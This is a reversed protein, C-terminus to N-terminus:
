TDYWKPKIVKEVKLIKSSKLDKKGEFIGKLLNAIHLTMFKITIYIIWFATKRRLSIPSLLQRFILHKLHYFKRLAKEITNAIEERSMYESPMIPTRWDWQKYDKIEIWDKRVCERWITTGPNPTLTFLEIYDLKLDLAYNALDMISEKTENEVGAIFTGVRIVQPYKKRLVEFVEKTQEYTCRSKQLTQLSETSSREIGILAHKLGIKVMKELIGLKEDQLLCDARLFAWYNFKMKRKLVEECFADTWEPAVNWTADVWFLYRKKYKHYLIEVEEIAREVSKQRYCPKVEEKGDQKISYQGMVKWLSCYNCHDICGRSKELVGANLWTMGFSSPKEMVMLDFAPIPLEDLNKILPRPPTIIIKGERKFGIGKVKELDRNNRLYELLEVITEEGEFRVIYDAMYEKLGKEVMFSFFHGGAITICRPNIEKAIKFVKVSEHAYLVVDGCGVVDPKEKEIIKRLTKWGIRMPPCDIIKVEIDEMKDRIAAALCPYNLPMLYDNTEYMIPHVYRPSNVFVVKM